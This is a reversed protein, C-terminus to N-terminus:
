EFYLLIKCDSSGAGDFLITVGINGNNKYTFRYGAIIKDSAYVPVMGVVRRKDNPNIELETNHTFSQTIYKQALNDSVSLRGQVAVGVQEIFQNLPGLMKDIWVPLEGSTALDERRISKIIPLKM